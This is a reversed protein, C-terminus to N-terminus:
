CIKKLNQELSFVADKGDTKTTYKKFVSTEEGSLAEFKTLLDDQVSNYASEDLEGKEYFEKVADSVQWLKDMKEGIINVLRKSKIKNRTMVVDPNYSKRAM